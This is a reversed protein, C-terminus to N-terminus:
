IVVRRERCWDRLWKHRYKIERADHLANHQISGLLRPLSKSQGMVGLRKLREVEQRLDNTFMPIGNPLNVMPGWFQALLVHDYASYWGWLEIGDPESLFALVEDRIVNYPRVLPSSWDVGLKGSFNSRGLEGRRPLHPIVNDMLWEHHQIRAYPMDRNVAYYEEGSEKVLAISILEITKGDELFEADIYVRKKM